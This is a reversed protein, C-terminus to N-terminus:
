SQASKPLTLLQLAMEILLRSRSLKALFHHAAVAQRSYRLSCFKMRSQSEAASRHKNPMLSKGLLESSAGSFSFCNKSSVFKTKLNRLRSSRTKCTRRERKRPRSDLYCTRIRLLTGSKRRNVADILSKSSDLSLQRWSTMLHTGKSALAPLSPGALNASAM